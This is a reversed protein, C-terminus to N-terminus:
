DDLHDASLFQLVVRNFEDAYALHINHRGEPFLYLRSKSIYKQFLRPHFEPVIPDEEGHLILTPCGILHLRQSCVEGGAGFTVQLADCYAAWISQLTEGYVAEMRERMRKSWTSLSRVSEIRAVDEDSIYSNGGWMVLKMVRVPEGITLLAAVNAGDSWGAVMFREHGLTTMLTAMDEADLQLFDLPFTREPPRSRGYGRPDPAVVTFYESFADLQPAFDSAGTGIAGPLCLLPPGAGRQEYHLLVSDMKVQPM